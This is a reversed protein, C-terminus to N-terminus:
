DVIEEARLNVIDRVVDEPLPNDVTFRITGKSVDFGTLRDRVADIVDSSFPFVSLHKKTALFGLFPKGRHKLAAMGYSKGEEADPVAELAVNRVREFAVRTPEDLTSLYEDLVTVRPVPRRITAGVGM